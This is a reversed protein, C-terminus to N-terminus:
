STSESTLLVMPTLVPINNEKIQQCITDISQQAVMSLDPPQELLCRAAQNVQQALQQVEESLGQM